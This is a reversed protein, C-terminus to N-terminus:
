RGFAPTHDFSITEASRFRPAISRTNAVKPLKFWKTLGRAVPRDASKARVFPLCRWADSVNSSDGVELRQWLM